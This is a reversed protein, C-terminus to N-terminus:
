RVEERLLPPNYSQTVRFRIRGVVQGRPTEVSVRWLGPFVTNRSYGRYGQDRGGIMPFSPRGASVWKQTKSDYYQWHHIINTRLDAPAFVSSFVFVSDKSAIPPYLRLRDSLSLVETLLRYQGTQPDRSVSHYVGIDRLTLPIPPIINTFYFVNMLTAVLLISTILTQKKEKVQPIYRALLTIYLFMLVLSLVGSLIFIGVSMQKLIHPLVLASYSFLIFFYVSAHVTLQLYYKKLLDNSVMLFVILLLFPWSVGFSGGFGYFILFGSLLAGFSFQLLLPSFLRIYRLFQKEYTALVTDYVHMFTIASLSLVLHIFLITFALSLNIYRFTTTDVLIGFVLAGPILFREYRAYWRKIKEFKFSRFM